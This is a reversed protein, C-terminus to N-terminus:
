KRSLRRVSEAVKHHNEINELRMNRQSIDMKRQASERTGSHGSIGSVDQTKQIEFEVDGVGLISQIPNQETIIDGVVDDFVIQETSSNVRGRKIVIRENTIVYKVSTGGTIYKYGMWILWFGATLIILAINRLTLYETFAKGEVLHLLEEDDYITVGEIPM